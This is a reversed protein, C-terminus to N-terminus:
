SSTALSSCGTSFAYKLVGGFTCVHSFSPNEAILLSISCYRVCWPVNGGGFCTPMKAIGHDISCGFHGILLLIAFM